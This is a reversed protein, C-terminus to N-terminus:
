FSPPPHPTMPNCVVHTLAGWTRKATPTSRTPEVDSGEERLPSTEFLNKAHQRCTLPMYVHTADRVILLHLDVNHVRRFLITRARRLLDDDASPAVFTDEDMDTAMAAVIDLFLSLALPQAGNDLGIYTCADLPPVSLLSLLKEATRPCMRVIGSVLAVQDDAIVADRLVEVPKQYLLQSVQGSAADQKYVGHKQAYAVGGMCSIVAM